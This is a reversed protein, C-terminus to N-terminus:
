NTLTSIPTKAEDAKVYGTLQFFLISLWIPAHQGFVCDQPIIQVCVCM